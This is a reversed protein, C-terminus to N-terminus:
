DGTRTYGATDAGVALYGGEIAYFGISYAWAPDPLGLAQALAQHREENM